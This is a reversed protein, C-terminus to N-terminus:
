LQKRILAIMTDWYDGYQAFTYTSQPNHLELLLDDLDFWRVQEVEGDAFHISSIDDIKVTYAFQMEMNKTDPDTEPLIMQNHHILVFHLDDKHLQLGLEESVESLAGDLPDVGAKIHGGAAIDWEGPGNPKSLSRQQILVQEKSNYIWIHVTRHLIGKQHAVSRLVTEGTPNGLNDVVDIREDAMCYNRLVM